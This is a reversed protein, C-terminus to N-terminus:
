SGLGLFMWGIAPSKLRHNLTWGNISGTLDKLLTKRRTLSMESNLASVPLPMENPHSLEVRSPYCRGQTAEILAWTAPRRVPNTPNVGRRLWWCTGARTPPKISSVEPMVEPALHDCIASLIDEELVRQWWQEPGGCIQASPHDHLLLCLRRVRYLLQGEARHGQAHRSIKANQWKEMVQGCLPSQLNMGSERAVLWGVALWHAHALHMLETTADLKRPPPQKLKPM